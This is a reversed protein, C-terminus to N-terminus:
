LIPTSTPVPSVTDKNCGRKMSNMADKLRQTQFGNSTQFPKAFWLFGSLKLTGKDQSIFYEYISGGYWCPNMFLDPKFKTQSSSLIPSLCNVCDNVLNVWITGGKYAAILGFFEWIKLQFLSFAILYRSFIRNMRFTQLSQGLPHHDQVHM